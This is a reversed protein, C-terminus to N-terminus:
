WYSGIVTAYVAFALVALPFLLLSQAIDGPLFREIGTDSRVGWPDKEGLCLLSVGKMTRINRLTDAKFVVRDGPDAVPPFDREIM